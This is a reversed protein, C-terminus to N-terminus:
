VGKTDSVPRRRAGRRFRERHERPAAGFEARFARNFNSVDAFGADLAADLIRADDAILRVAAQRLRARLTYQHPTVGTVRAFTRLFHYPSLSAERALEALALPAGPDRDIRRVALVVRREANRPARPTATPEAALRVTAMAVRLALDEWLGGGFHEDRVTWASCAEAVLPALRRVPPVRLARLRARGRAGADAMLRDFHEAAFAFALCRDGSGHEHGCEFCQGPNGLLLSGPTMLERGNASRCAFTGAGVLAIRYASHREEFAPDSPGFTCLVDEVFWDDGRALVRSRLRPAAGLRDRDRRADTLLDAIKAM